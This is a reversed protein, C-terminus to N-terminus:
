KKKLKRAQVTLPTKHSRHQDLAPTGIIIQLSITKKTKTIKTSQDSGHGASCNFAIENTRESM